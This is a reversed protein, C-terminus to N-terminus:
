WATVSQTIPGTTYTIAVPERYVWFRSLSGLDMRLRLVAHGENSALTPTTDDWAIILATTSTSSVLAGTAAPPPPALSLPRYWGSQAPPVVTALPHWPATSDNM